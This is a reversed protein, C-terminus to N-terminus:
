SKHCDSQVRRPSGAHLVHLVFVPNHQYFGWPKIKRKRKWTGRSSHGAVELSLLEINETDCVFWINKRVNIHLQIFCM